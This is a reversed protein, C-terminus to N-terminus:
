INRARIKKVLKGDVTAQLEELLLHSFIQIKQAVASNDTTINLVGDRFSKVKYQGSFGPVLKDMIKRAEHCIRIAQFETGMGLHNAAVEILKQFGPNNEKSSSM